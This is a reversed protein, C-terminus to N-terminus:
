CNSQSGRFSASSLKQYDESYANILFEGDNVVQGAAGVLDGVKVDIVQAGCSAQRGLVAVKFDAYCIRQVDYKGCSMRKGRRSM